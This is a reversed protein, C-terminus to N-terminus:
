LMLLYLLHNQGMYQSKLLGSSDLCFGWLNLPFAMHLCQSLCSWKAQLLNLPIKDMHIFVQYPANFLLFGSAELHHGLVPWSAAPMFQFLSFQM